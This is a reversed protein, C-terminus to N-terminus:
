RIPRWHKRDGLAAVSVLLEDSPMGNELLLRAHPLHGPKDGLATVVYVKPSGGARTFRGGVQVSIRAM